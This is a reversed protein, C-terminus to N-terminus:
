THSCQVTDKGRIFTLCSNIFIFEESAKSLVVIFSFIRWWRNEQVWGEMSIFGAGCKSRMVLLQFSCNMKTLM